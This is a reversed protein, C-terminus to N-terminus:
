SCSSTEDDNCFRCGECEACEGECDVILLETGTAFEFNPLQCLLDLADQRDISTRDLLVGKLQTM